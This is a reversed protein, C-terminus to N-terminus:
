APPAAEPATTAAPPPADNTIEQAAPEVWTGLMKQAFEQFYVREGPFMELMQKVEAPSLVSEGCTTMAKILDAKDMYGDQGIGETGKKDLIRFAMMIEEEEVRADKFQAEAATIFTAWDIKKEDEPAELPPGADDGEAGDKKKKEQQEEQKKRDKGKKKEEEKAKDDAIKQLPAAMSDYLRDLDANTPNMGMGRLLVWCDLMSIKDKDKESQAQAATLMKFILDAENHIDSTLISPAVPQQQQM